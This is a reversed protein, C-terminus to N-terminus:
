APPSDSKQVLSAPTSKPTPTVILIAPTKSKPATTSKSASAKSKPTKSSTRSKQVSSKLIKSKSKSTTSSSDKSKSRGRSAKASVPKLALEMQHKVHDDLLQIARELSLREMASPASLQGCQLFAGYRGIGHVVPYGTIPHLGLVPSGSLYRLTDLLEPCLMDPALDFPIAVRQNTGSFQLYASYPGVMLQCNERTLYAQATLPLLSAPLTKTSAPSVLAMAAVCPELTQRYFSALYDVVDLSGLAIQDLATEVSSTFGLDVLPQFHTSLLSHVALGTLTPVLGRSPSALAYKRTMLTEIISAYTSPRGVGHKELARVLGAESMRRPPSTAHPQAAVSLLELQPTGTVYLLIDALPHDALPEEQLVAQFGPDLVKRFAARWSSRQPGRVSLLVSRSHSPAMLSALTRRHILRYLAVQEKPMSSPLQEPPRFTGSVPDITPRIAEHAEQAHLSSSSPSSPSSSSRIKHGGAALAILAAAIADESLQPKDTRMYTIYGQEYLAQATMMTAKSRFGLLTSAAQQLSSTVFPPPASRSSDQTTVKEVSWGSAEKQWTMCLAECEAQDRPGFRKEPNEVAGTEPDFDTATVVPLGDVSYLQAECSSALSSASNSFLQLRCRFSFYPSSIFNLRSKEREVLLGLAPSQVRGASLGFAVFKWVVPSLTFGTLRDVMRRAEQARVLNMDLVRDLRARTGLRREQLAAMVARQSVEHFVARSVAVDKLASAKQSSSSPVRKPLLSELLHWAIAEGERDADTALVLEEIPNAAMAARLRSLVRQKGPLPLYVPDFASLSFGLRREQATWSEAAGELAGASVSERPLDRVHGECSDVVYEAPDLWQALMRAKTPSEVVVLRSAMGRWGEGAREMGGGRQLLLVLSLM